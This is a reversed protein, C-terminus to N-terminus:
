LLWWLILYLLGAVFVSTTLIRAWRPWNPLRSAITAVGPLRDGWSAYQSRKSEIESGKSYTPKKPRGVGGPLPRIETATTLWTFWNWKKHCKTCTRTKTDISGGCTTHLFRM